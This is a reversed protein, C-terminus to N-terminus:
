VIAAAAVAATEARLTRRGLSATDAGAERAAEVEALSFGGEPGILLGVQPPCPTLLRLLAGGASPDLCFWREEGGAGLLEELRLPGALEPLRVRGSQEAAERAIRAYRELRR